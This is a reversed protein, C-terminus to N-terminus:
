IDVSSVGDATIKKLNGYGAGTQIFLWSDVAWAVDVGDYVITDTDGGTINRETYNGYPRRGTWMRIGPVTRVLPYTFPAPLPTGFWRTSDLAPVESMLCGLADWDSSGSTGIVDVKAM